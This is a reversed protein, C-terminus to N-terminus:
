RGAVASRAAVREQERSNTRRSRAPTIGGHARSRRAQRAPQCGCPIARATRPRNRRSAGSQAASAWATATSPSEASGTRARGPQGAQVSSAAKPAASASAAAAIKSGPRGNANTWVSTRALMSASRSRRRARRPGRALPATARRCRRPRPGSRPECGPRSGARPGPRPPSGEGLPRRLSDGRRARSRRPREAGRGPLAAARRAPVRRIAWSSPTAASRARRGRCPSRAVASPSRRARPGGHAPPPPPRARNRATEQAEPRVLGDGREARHDVLQGLALALLAKPQLRRAPCRRPRAERRPAVQACAAVAEVDCAPGRGRGALPKCERDRGQM